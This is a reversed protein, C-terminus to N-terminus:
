NRANMEMPLQRWSRLPGIGSTQPGPWMTLDNAITQATTLALNPCENSTALELECHFKRSHTGDESFKTGGLMAASDLVTFAHLVSRAPPASWFPLFLVPLELAGM